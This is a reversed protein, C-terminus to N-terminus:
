VADPLTDVQEDKWRQVGDKFGEHWILDKPSRPAYPSKSEAADCPRQNGCNFGDYWWRSNKM